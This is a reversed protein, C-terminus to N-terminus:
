VHALGLDTRLNGVPKLDTEPEDQHGHGDSHEHGYGEAGDRGDLM